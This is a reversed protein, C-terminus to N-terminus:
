GTSEHTYIVTACSFLTPRLLKAVFNKEQEHYFFRVDCGDPPMNTEMHM